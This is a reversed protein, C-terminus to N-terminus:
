KEKTIEDKTFNEVYEEALISAVALGAGIFDNEIDFKLRTTLFHNLDKSKKLKDQLRKNDSGTQACAKSLGFHTLAELRQHYETYKHPENQKNIARMQAPTYLPKLKPMKPVTFKPEKIKQANIKPPTSPIDLSQM